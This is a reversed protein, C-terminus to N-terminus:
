GSKPSWGGEARSCTAAETSMLIEALDQVAGTRQRKPIPWEHRQIIKLVSLVVKRTLLKGERWPFSRHISAPKLWLNMCFIRWFQPCVQFSRFVVSCGGGNVRRLRRLSSASKGIGHPPCEQRGTRASKRGGTKEERLTATRPRLLMLRCLRQAMGLVRLVVRQEPIGALDQVAGTGPAKSDAAGAVSDVEVRGVCAAVDGETEYDGVHPPPNGKGLEASRAGCDAIFPAKGGIETGGRGRVRAAGAIENTNKAYWSVM